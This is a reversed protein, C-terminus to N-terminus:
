RRATPSGGPASIPVGDGQQVQIQTAASRWPHITSSSIAARLEQQRDIHGRQETPRPPHKILRDMPPQNTPLFKPFISCWFRHEPLTGADTYM